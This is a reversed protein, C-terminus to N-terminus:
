VSGVPSYTQPSLLTPLLPRECAGRFIRSRTGNWMLLPLPTAMLEALLLEIQDAPRGRASWPALALDRLWEALPKEDRGVAAAEVEQLEEPTLRTAM